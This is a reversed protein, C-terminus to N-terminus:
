AGALCMVCACLTTVPDGGAVRKAPVDCAGLRRGTGAAREGWPPNRVSRLLSIMEHALAVPEAEPESRIHMAIDLAQAAPPM